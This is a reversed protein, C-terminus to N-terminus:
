QGRARGEIRLLVDGEYIGSAAQVALKGRTTVLIDNLKPIRKDNPPPAQPVTAGPWQAVNIQTPSLIFKQDQQTILGVLESPDYGRLHVRVTVDVPIQQTGFMRRLTADGGRRSLSDDLRSIAGEPTDAWNTM